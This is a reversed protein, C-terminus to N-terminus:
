LECVQAEDYFMFELDRDRLQQTGEPNAMMSLRGCGQSSSSSSAAGNWRLRSAEGERWGASEAWGYSRRRRDSVIHSLAAPTAATRGHQSSCGGGGGGGGHNLNRQQFFAPAMVLGQAQCLLLVLAVATTSRRRWATGSEDGLSRRSQATPEAMTYSLKLNARSSQRSSSYQQLARQQSWSKKM